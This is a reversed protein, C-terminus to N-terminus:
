SWQADDTLRVGVDIGPIRSVNVRRSDSELVRGLGTLEQLQRELLEQEAVARDFNVLAREYEKQAQRKSLKLFVSSLQGFGVLAMVDLEVAWALGTIMHVFLPIAVSLQGLLAIKGLRLLQTSTM